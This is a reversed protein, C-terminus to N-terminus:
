KARWKRQAKGWIGNKGPALIGNPDLADKVKENLKMLAHDNFDFTDAVADMYSIHTRYEAYGNDHADKILAGFLGRVQKTQPQSDKDYLILNVNTVHRGHHYFTSSFDQGFEIYRARTRAFQEMVLKGDPPMVPSFGIHGGRGGNWNVIQLPLVGPAPAGSRGAAPDGKAWKTIRFEQRTHKAFADQVRRTNAAVVPETGYLRLNFNWWGVNNKKIIADIVKDPMAGPGDYWEKRQASITASQMYSTIGVSQDITRDLRLPTLTDIAWGLDEKNPLGMAFSATSEPEPMLWFGAKTVVGFNSQVFVQDWAPGFGFKFLPWTKNDKMAGMGTRILEGTPLVVEMGCFSSSHEGYPTASFGRELANGIVSGWGNGPNSLWLGIKNQTLYEHLQFFGVGPEIQCYGFKENVDLIRNMRTLDLMITGPVVPSAGGYGLNKGRSIPWLPLKHENALRVIAQVEEASAPAISASPAHAEADGPAYVDLYTERDEDTALVWDKGVVREFAALGRDFVARTVGSPLILKM